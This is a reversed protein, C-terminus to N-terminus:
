PRSYGSYDTDREAFVLNMGVAPLDNIAERFKSQRSKVQLEELPQLMQNESLFFKWFQDLHIAVKSTKVFNEPVVKRPETLEQWIVDTDSSRFPMQHLDQLAFLTYLYGAHVSLEVAACIASTSVNAEAAAKHLTGGVRPANSRRVSSLEENSPDGDEASFRKIIPLAHSSDYVADEWYMLNKEPIRKRINKREWKEYNKRPTECEPFLLTTRRILDERNKPTEAGKELQHM